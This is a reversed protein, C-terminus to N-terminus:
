FDDSSDCPLYQCIHEFARNDDDPRHAFKPGLGIFQTRQWLVRALDINNIESSKIFIANIVASEVHLLQYGFTRM